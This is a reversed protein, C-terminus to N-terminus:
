EFIRPAAKVELKKLIDQPNEFKSLMIMAAIVYPKFSAEKYLPIRYRDFVSADVEGTECSVGTIDAPLCQLIGSYQEPEYHFDRLFIDIGAHTNQIVIQQQAEPLQAHLARERLQIYMVFLPHIRYYFLFHLDFFIM